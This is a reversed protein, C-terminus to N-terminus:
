AASQAASTWYGTTGSEGKTLGQFGEEQIL